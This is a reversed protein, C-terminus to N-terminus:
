ATNSLYSAFPKGSELRVPQRSVQANPCTMEPGANNQSQKGDQPAVGSKPKELNEWNLHRGNQGEIKGKVSEHDDIFKYIFIAEPSFLFSNCGGIKRQPLEQESQNATLYPIHVYSDM